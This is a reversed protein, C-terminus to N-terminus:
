ASLESMAVLIGQDLSGIGVEGFGAFVGLVRSLWLGPYIVVFHSLLETTREPNLVSEPDVSEQAVGISFATV